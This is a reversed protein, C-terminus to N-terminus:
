IAGTFWVKPPIRTGQNTLVVELNAVTLDAANGLMDITPAFIANM